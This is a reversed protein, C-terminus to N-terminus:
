WDGLISGDNPQLANWWIAPSTSADLPRTSGDCLAM